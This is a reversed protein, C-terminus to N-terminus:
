KMSYKYQQKNNSNLGKVNRKPYLKNDNGDEYDYRAGHHDNINNKNIFIM